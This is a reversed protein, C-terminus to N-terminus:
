CGQKCWRGERLARLHACQRACMKTRCYFFEFLRWKLIPWPKLASSSIVQVERRPHCFAIVNCDLSAEFLPQVRQKQWHRVFSRRAFPGQICLAILIHRLIWPFQLWSSICLYIPPSLLDHYTMSEFARVAAEKNRCNIRGKQRKIKKRTFTCMEFAFIEFSYDFPQHNDNTLSAHTSPVHLGALILASYPVLEVILSAM